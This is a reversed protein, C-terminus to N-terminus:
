QWGSELYYQYVKSQTYTTVWNRYFEGFDPKRDSKQTGSHHPTVKAGSKEPFALALSDQYMTRFVPTFVSNTQMVENSLYRMQIDPSLTSTQYQRLLPIEPIEGDSQRPAALWWGWQGFSPVLDHYPMAELGAAMMTRGIAWFAKYAYVPSTSQQVFVGGSRLKQRVRHYFPLSYLKSLMESNPDPFDAIIVDFFGPAEEIYRVADMSKLIIGPASQLERRNSGRTGNWGALYTPSFFTSPETDAIDPGAPLRRVNQGHLADRNLHRLTPDEAALRLMEPDLDCLIAETVSPYKRVERLALGDGGGLILVRTPERGSRRRFLAFAPHVLNEHYIFEDRSSFQLHGNIYLRYESEPEEGQRPFYASRQRSSRTLVLHQYPTTKSLVIPDRYLGQESHLSWEPGRIFAWLLVISVAIGLAPLWKYRSLQRYFYAMFLWTVAMNAFGLIAASRSLPLYPILWYSWLVAGGLAGIYDMQLTRGINVKLQPTFSGNIRVIIPIELGILFGIAAILLYQWLIYHSQWYAYAWLLLLPSLGGLLSLLMELLVFSAFLVQRPLAKQYNAGLGMFFMMVGIIMAWQRTSDGLLDSAIKSVTYEYALGCSGTLLVALYLVFSNRKRNQSFLGM